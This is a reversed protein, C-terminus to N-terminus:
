ADREVVQLSVLARGVRGLVLFASLRGVHSVLSGCECRPPRRVKLEVPVLGDFFTGVFRLDPKTGNLQSRKTHFQTGSSIQLLRRGAGDGVM